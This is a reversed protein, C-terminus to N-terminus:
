AVQQAGVGRSGEDVDGAGTQEGARRTTTSPSREFFLRPSLVAISSKRPPILANVNCKDMPSMANMVDKM